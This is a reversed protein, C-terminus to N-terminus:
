TNDQRSPPLSQLLDTLAKSEREPLEQFQVGFAYGSAWRVIASPVYILSTQRPRIQLQIATEPPMPITSAVRCGGMSLDLVVADRVQMSGTSYVGQFNDPHRRHKRQEVTPEM